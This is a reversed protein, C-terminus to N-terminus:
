CVSHYARWEDTKMDFFGNSPGIILNSKEDFPELRSVDTCRKLLRGKDINRQMQFLHFAASASYGLLKCSMSRHFSAPFSHSIQM